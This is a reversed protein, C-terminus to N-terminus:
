GIINNNFVYDNMNPGFEVSHMENIIIEAEHINM